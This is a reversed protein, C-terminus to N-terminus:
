FSSSTTPCEFEASYLKLLEGKVESPDHLDQDKESKEDAKLGEFGISSTRQIAELDGSLSHPLLSNLKSSISRSNSDIRNVIQRGRLQLDDQTSNYTSFVIAIEKFMVRIVKAYLRIDLGQVPAQLVLESFFDEDPFRFSDDSLIPLLSCRHLRAIQLLVDAVHPCLFCGNSCVMLAAEAIDPIAEGEMIVRPSACRSSRRLEKGLINYLIYATAAAEMYNLDAIICCDPEGKAHSLFRMSRDGNCLSDVVSAITESNVSRPMTISELTNLWRLTEEVDLRSISFRALDTIDPVAKCYQEIFADDPRAFDPWTLLLAHVSHVRATVMEGVCWKRKLVESSGLILFTSTDQGVYWFLKTLDHLDDCDVFTTYQRGRKQLEMKLLRAVSGAANKHHCLFYRFKKHRKGRLYKIFGFLMCGFIAVFTALFITVCTVLASFEDVERVFLTGLTILLILLIGLFLELYNSATLKWPKFFATLTVHLALMLNMGLVRASATPLLPLFALLLNRVLFLVSFFEAGPRFRAFLFNCSQMFTVDAERLRQPLVLVVVWTSLALFSIPLLLGFGGLLSMQLHEDKGNCLVENYGQVSSLGNPHVNCRFPTLLSALVSIYFVMFLSGLTRALLGNQWDRKQNGLNKKVQFLFHVLVAVLFLALVLFTQLTFRPLAALPAVCGISIYDLDFSLLNALGLWSNLPELWNIQMQNIVSFLQVTTLLQSVALGVILLNSSQRAKVGEKVFIWYLLVIACVVLTASISLIAYDGGVCPICKGSVGHLGPLCQSCAVTNTDRGAACTGPLGGPCRESDGFCEFIKGPNNEFSHYGPLLVLKSSGPCESGVGCVDCDLSIPSLYTGPICGCMSEDTAGQVQIWMEGDQVVKQSTTWLRLQAPAMSYGCQHCFTMGTANAYQGLRCPVCEMLGKEAAMTGVECPTCSTEGPLSQHEGPPCAECIRTTELRKSYTGVPCVSCSIAHSEKLVFVGQADVLGKGEACQTDSPLWTTWHSTRKLWKCASTWPDDGSALHAVLLEQIEPESLTLSEALALARNAVKQMDASAWKTLVTAQRQSKYIQRRHEAPNHKPFIVATAESLAFKVDPTWWYVLSQLERGLVVYEDIPERKGTAFALPMNHWFAQQLMLWLGYGTGGTIVPMCDDPNSRCVPSLWWKEEWCKLLVTGTGNEIKVGGWDGTRNLYEAGLYGYYSNVSEDCTQLRSMNVDSVNPTYKEPHFWRADYNSYFELSLGSDQLGADLAAGQVFLGSTGPYGVSGLNVPAREELQELLPQVYSSYGQWSEFCFHFRRPLICDAKVDDPARQSCGALMYLVDTSSPGTEADVVFGLKEAALIEFIHSLLLSSDWSLRWTSLPGAIDDITINARKSLPIGDEFCTM